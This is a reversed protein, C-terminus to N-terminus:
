KMAKLADPLIAKSEYTYALNRKPSSVSPLVVPPPEPVPESVVKPEKAKSRTTAFAAAPVDDDEEQEEQISASVVHDVPPVCSVFLAQIQSTDPTNNVLGSPALPGGFRFDVSIRLGQNNWAIPSKDAYLM